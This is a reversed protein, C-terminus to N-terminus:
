YRLAYFALKQYEWLLTKSDRRRTWWAKPDFVSDPPAAQVSVQVETGEFLRHFLLRCRRTHFSSTVVILRRMGQEQLYRQVKKAKDITSESYGDLIEVASEPVKYFKLIALCKEHSELERIGYSKLAEAAYPYISKTVLIRPAWGQLFLDAAKPCRSTENGSIVAIADARELPDSIVLYDGVHILIPRHFLFLTFGLLLPLFFYLFKRRHM